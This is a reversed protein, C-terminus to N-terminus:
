ELLAIGNRKLTRDFTRLLGFADPTFLYGDHFSEHVIDDGQWLSKAFRLPGFFMTFKPRGCQSCPGTYGIVEEKVILHGLDRESNLYFYRGQDDFPHFCAGSLTGGIASAVRAAVIKFQGNVSLLPKKSRVESVRVRTDVTIRKRGCEGCASSFDIEDIWLDPFYIVWLPAQEYDQDDFVPWVSQTVKVEWREAEVIKEIQSLRGPDYLASFMTTRNSGMDEFRFGHQSFTRLIVDLPVPLPRPFPAGEICISERIEM